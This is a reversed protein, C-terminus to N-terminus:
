CKPAASRWALVFQNRENKFPPHHGGVANPVAPCSPCNKGCLHGNNIYDVKYKQFRFIRRFKANVVGNITRPCGGYRGQRTLNWFGHYRYTYDSGIQEEEGLFANSLRRGSCSNTCDCGTTSTPPWNGMDSAWVSVENKEAIIKEAGPGCAPPSENWVWSYQCGRALYAFISPEPPPLAVRRILFQADQEITAWTTSCKCCRLITAM